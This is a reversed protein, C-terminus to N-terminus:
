IVIIYPNIRLISIVFTVNSNKKRHKRMASPRSLNGACIKLKLNMTVKKLLIKKMLHFVQLPFFLRVVCSPYFCFIIFYSTIFIIICHLNKLIFVIILFDVYIFNKILLQHYFNASLTLYVPYFNFLQHYFNCKKSKFFFFSILKRFSFLFIIFVNVFDYNIVSSCRNRFTITIHGVKNKAVLRNHQTYM